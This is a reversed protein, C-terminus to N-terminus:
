EISGGFRSVFAARDGRMFRFVDFGAIQRAWSVRTGALRRRNVDEVVGVRFALVLAPRHHLDDVVKGGAGVSAKAVANVLSIAKASFMSFSAFGVAFAACSRLHDGVVDGVEFLGEELVSRNATATLFTM